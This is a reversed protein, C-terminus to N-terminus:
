DRSRRWTQWALVACVVTIPVSCGLYLWFAFAHSSVLHCGGSKGCLELQGDRLGLFIRSAFYLAGGSALIVLLISKVRASV